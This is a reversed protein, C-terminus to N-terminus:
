PRLSPSGQEASAPWSAPRGQAPLGAAPKVEPADPKPQLLTQTQDDLHAHVENLRDTLMGDTQAQVSKAVEEVAHVRQALLAGVITTILPGALFLTYAGTDKGALGLVVFGVVLVVVVLVLSLILGAPNSGRTASTPQVPM